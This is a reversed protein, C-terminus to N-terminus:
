IILVVCAVGSMIHNWPLGFIQPDNKDSAQLGLWVLRVAFTSWIGIILWLM